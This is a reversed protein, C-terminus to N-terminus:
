VKGGEVAYAKKGSEVALKNIEVGSRIVGAYNPESTKGDILLKNIAAVQAQPPMAMLLNSDEETIMKMSVAQIRMEKAMKTAKGPDKKAMDFIAGTMFPKGNVINMNYIKDPDFDIEPFHEPFRENIKAGTMSETHTVKMGDTEVTIEQGTVFNRKTEVKVERGNKAYTKSDITQFDGEYKRESMFKNINDLAKKPDEEQEMFEILDQERPTFKKWRDKEKLFGFTRKREASFDKEKESAMAAVYDEPFKKLDDETLTSPDGYLTQIKQKVIEPVGDMAMLGMIKNQIGAKRKELTASTKESAMQTYTKPPAVRNGIEEQKTWIDELSKMAKEPNDQFMQILNQKRNAASGPTRGFAADPTSEVNTVFAKFRKVKEDQADIGQLRTAEAQNELMREQAAEGEHQRNLADQNYYGSIGRPIAKGLSEGLTIPRDRWGEDRMMSAGLQLLGMAIPSPSGDEEEEKEQALLSKAEDSLPHKYGKTPGETDGYALLRNEM